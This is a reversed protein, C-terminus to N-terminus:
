QIVQPPLSELLEAAVGWRLNYFSHQFADVGALEAIAVMTALATPFVDARAPPLGPVRQRAQLPLPGIDRLLRHLESVSVVPPSEELTVRTEAALVLRAATMSGGACVASAEKLDFRFGSGELTRRVHARVAAADAETFPLRADPVLLEALRVSGLPLSLSQQVRRGDFSLCELSGGGLDFVYFDRLQTLAPDVTLGRGILDAEETGSLVRVEYGTAARVRARFDDGNRADRVAATAVLVVRVPHYSTAYALLERVADLGRQMGEDSLIPDRHSIGTSIRADITKMGVAQLRGEAERAAILVKITNSGIDVVAVSGPTM